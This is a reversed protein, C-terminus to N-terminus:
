GGDRSLRAWQPRVYLFALPTGRVLREILLPLLLAALATLASVWGVDAIAGTKILVMRTAAMPIAFSLYVALSKRGIAALWGMAPLRALLASAVVVALAGALGFVLTGGPLDAAGSWVGLTNFAAWLALGLGARAPHRAAAEALALLRDRGFHGALFFVLFLTLSDLAFSGTLDSSLAYRGGDAYAAALVHLASAAALVPPAPLARLARVILFMVPLIYIFWLSSYPDYLSRLLEGGIERGDLGHEVVGKLGIAVGAWLLYFYVFHVLRRDLFRKLPQDLASAAFLGAVLFFDPMRFPKAWAVLLHLWGTGGMDQGVGLTSHMIVVLVISWGKAIDAWAVRGPAAVTRDRKADAAAPAVPAFHLFGSEQLSM